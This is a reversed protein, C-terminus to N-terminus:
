RMRERLIIISMYPSQICNLLHDAPLWFAADYCLLLIASRFDSAIMFMV